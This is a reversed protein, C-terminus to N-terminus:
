SSVGKPLAAVSSFVLYGFGLSQDHAERGTWTMQIERDGGAADTDDLVCHFGITSGAAIKLTHIGSYNMAAECIYGDTTRKTAVQLYPPDVGAGGDLNEWNWKQNAFNFGWQSHQSHDGVPATNTTGFFIEVCDANWIDAGTKDAVLVDDKVIVAFYINKDDWMVYFKGSLDAPGTWSAAGTYIQAPANLVAPTMADLNWDSLDGDIATPTGRLCTLVLPAGTTPDVAPPAALAWSLSLLTFVGVFQWKKTLM